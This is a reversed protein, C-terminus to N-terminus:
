LIGIVQDTLQEAAARDRSGVAISARYIANSIRERNFPVVQGTRKIVQKIEASM